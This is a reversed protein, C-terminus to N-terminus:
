NGAKHVIQIFEDQEFAAPMSNSLSEIDKWKPMQIAHTEEKISAFISDRRFNIAVKQVFAIM